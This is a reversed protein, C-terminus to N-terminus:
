SKGKLRHRPHSLLYSEKLHKRSVHTYIQTTSLSSHGLMEQVSKLDAGGELLHTAFTHRLVHPTIKIGAKQAYKKVIKWIGQRSLREGKRNIFLASTKLHPIKGRGKELYDRLAQLAFKGIPVIREKGGKGFLRIFGRKFDLNDIDLLVAESVRLGSSYLTELLARDRLSYFDDGKVQSLIAEVDKPSLVQPLKKQAKPYEADFHPNIPYDESALFKFFTRLSAVKRRRSSSAYGKRKLHSLYAVIEKKGVKSLPIERKELYSLFYKIDHSYSEITSNPLGREILLYNLFERLEKSHQM